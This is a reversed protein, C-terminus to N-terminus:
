ERKQPRHLKGIFQEYARTERCDGYGLWKTRNYEWVKDLFKYWRASNKRISIPTDNNRGLWYEHDEPIRRSWRGIEDSLSARRKNINAYDGAYTYHSLIDAISYKNDLIAICSIYTTFHFDDLVANLCFTRNVKSEPPPLPAPPEQELLTLKIQPWPRWNDVFLQLALTQIEVHTAEILFNSQM